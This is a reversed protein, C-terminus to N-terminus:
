AWAQTLSCPSRARLHTKEQNKKGGGRWKQPQHLTTLGQLTIHMHWWKAYCRLFVTSFYPSWVLELWTPPIYDETVSLLRGKSSLCTGQSIKCALKVTQCCSTSYGHSTHQLHQSYIMKAEQSTRHLEEHPWFHLPYILSQRGKYISTCYETGKFHIHKVGFFLYFLGCHPFPVQTKKQSVKFMSVCIPSSMATKSIMATDM